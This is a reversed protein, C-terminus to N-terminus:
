TPDFAGRSMFHFQDCLQFIHDAEQDIEQWDRGASRNIAGILSDDLFRSYKAEFDAVQHLLAELYGNACARSPEVLCVRCRTGMAIFTLTSLGNEEQIVASNMVRQRIEPFPISLVM